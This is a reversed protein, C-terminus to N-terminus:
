VIMYKNIEQEKTQRTFHIQMKAVQIRFQQCHVKSVLLQMDKNTKGYKKRANNHAINRLLHTSAM